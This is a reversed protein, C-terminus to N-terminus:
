VGRSDGTTLITFLGSPGLRIPVEEASLSYIRMLSVSTVLGYKKLEQREEETSKEGLHRQYYPLDEGCYLNRGM